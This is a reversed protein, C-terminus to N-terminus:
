AGTNLLGIAFRANENNLNDHAKQGSSTMIVLDGKKAFFLVVMQRVCSSIDKPSWSGEDSWAGPADRWAGDKLLSTIRETFAEKDGADFLRTLRGFCWTLRWVMWEEELRSLRASAPGREDDPKAGGPLCPLMGYAEVFSLNAKNDGQFAEWGAGKWNQCHLAMPIGNGRKIGAEGRLVKLKEKLRREAEKAPEKPKAEVESNLEAGSGPPEPAVEKGRERRPRQSTPSDRPEAVAEKGRKRRPRQVVPQSSETEPEPESEPEPEPQSKPQLEPEAKIKVVGLGRTEPPEAPQDGTLDEAEQSLDVYEEVPELGCSTEAALQWWPKETANGHMLYARHWAKVQAVLISVELWDRKAVAANVAARLINHAAEDGGRPTARPPCTVTRTGLSRGTRTSGGREVETEYEHFVDEYDERLAKETTTTTMTRRITLCRGVETERKCGSTPPASALDLDRPLPAFELANEM